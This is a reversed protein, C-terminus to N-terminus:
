RKCPYMRLGPPTWGTLGPAAARQQLGQAQLAAIKHFIWSLNSREKTSLVQQQGLFSVFLSHRETNM